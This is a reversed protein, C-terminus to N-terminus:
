TVNLVQKPLVGDEYELHYAISNGETVNLELAIESFTSAPESDSIICSEIESFIFM